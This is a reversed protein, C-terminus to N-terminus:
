PKVTIDLLDEIYQQRVLISTPRRDQPIFENKRLIFDRIASTEFPELSGPRSGSPTPDTLELDRGLILDELIEGYVDSVSSPLEATTTTIKRAAFRDNEIKYKVDKALEDPTCILLYLNWPAVEGRMVEQAVLAISSNVNEWEHTCASSSVFRAIFCNIFNLEDNSRYLSFQVDAHLKQLIDLIKQTEDTQSLLIRLM